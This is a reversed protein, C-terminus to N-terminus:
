GFLKFTREVNGKAVTKLTDIEQKIANRETDLAALETDYKRDKLDIRKMDSEYQAEAKKLNTEDQVEQLGTNTAVSTEYYEGSNDQEYIFIYGENLMNTLWKNDNEHGDTPDSAVGIIYKGAAIMDFMYGYNGTDSVSTTTAINPSAATVNNTIPAASQTITLGTSSKAFNGFLSTYCNTFTNSSAVTTGGVFAGITGPYGNSNVNGVFNSNTVVSDSCIGGMFAGMLSGHEEPDTMYGGINYYVDAYGNINSASSSDAIYGFASGVISAESKVTGRSECYTIDSHNMRGAIGGVVVDCGWQGDDYFTGYVTNNTICNSMQVYEGCGIIGGVVREATVSGTASCDQILIKSGAAGKAYGVIGGVSSSSSSVSVDSSCRQIKNGSGNIYGVIAGVNSDSSNISGSVAIDSITVNSASISNVLISRTSVSGNLSLNKITSGTNASSFLAKSLGQISHGNGDFTKNTGLSKSSWAVGSMDINSMLRYNNSSSIASLHSPLYIEYINESANFGDVGVRGSELAIFFDRSGSATDYNDKDAQTITVRGEEVRGNKGWMEGTELFEIFYGNNLLSQYTADKYDFSGDNNLMKYQIKTADLANLYNDYVRRSENAMQLKQAELKAAKYEIQHMRATLNLLRAQSSSMGM